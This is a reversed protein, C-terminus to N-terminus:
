YKYDGTIPDIDVKDVNKKKGLGFLRAFFGPKKEPEHQIEVKPQEKPAPAPKPPLRAAVIRFGKDIAARSYGQSILVIKLQDANYGKSLNKEIYDALRKIYDGDRLATM